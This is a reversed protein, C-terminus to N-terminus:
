AGRRGAAQVAAEFQENLHQDKSDVADPEPAAASSAASALQGCAQQVPHVGFGLDVFSVIISWVAELYQRKEEDTLNAGDLHHQFEEVDVRLVREASAASAEIAQLAPQTFRDDKSAKM